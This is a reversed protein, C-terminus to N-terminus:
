RAPPIEDLYWANDAYHCKNCQVELGITHSVQPLPESGDNQGQNLVTMWSQDDGRIVMMGSIDHCVFCPVGRHIPQHYLPSNAVQKALDHCASGGCMYSEPDGLGTHFSPKEVQASIINQIDTHCPSETCSAQVSHANHCDTCEFESHAQQTTTQIENIKEQDAHCNTCLINPSAIDEVQGSSEDTWVLQKEVIEGKRKHCKDCSFESHPSTTLLSKINVLMLEHEPSITPFPTVTATPAVSAGTACSCLLFVFTFLYRTKMVYKDYFNKTGLNSM